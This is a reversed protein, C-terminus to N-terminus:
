RRRRARTIEGRRGEHAALRERARVLYDKGAALLTATAVLTSPTNPPEPFSPSSESPLVTAPAPPDTVHVLNRTVLSHLLLRFDADVTREDVRSQARLDILTLTEGPAALLKELIVIAQAQLEVAEDSAESNGGVNTPVASSGLGFQTALDPHRALQGCLQEEGWTVIRLPYAKSTRSELWARHAPDKFAFTTVFVYEDFEFRGKVRARQAAQLDDRFKGQVVEWAANQHHYIQYATNDTLCDIGHGDVHRYSAGHERNLITRWLFEFAAPVLRRIDAPTLL